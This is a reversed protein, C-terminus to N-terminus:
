YHQSSMRCRTRRQAIRSHGSSSDWRHWHDSHQQKLWRTCPTDRQDSQQHCQSCSRWRRRRRQRSQFCLQYRMTNWSYERDKKLQHSAKCMKHCQDSSRTLPSLSSKTHLQDSSEMWHLM